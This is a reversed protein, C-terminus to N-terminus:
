PTYGERPPQPWLPEFVFWQDPHDGIVAELVAGIRSQIDEVSQSRSPLLPPYFRFCFTDDAQRLVFAPLIPAGSRKALVAAGWPLPAPKGFFPVLRGGRSFDLDALLVVLEHRKLCASVFAAGADMSCARVGHRIRQSQFLADLRASPQGRVVANVLCGHMTLVSAGLEWNGVHATLGIIGRQMDRCQQLYEIREVKILADLAQPSLRGMQFFDVVYKGFNDFNRRVVQDLEAVSGAGGRGDLVVRLNAAVANRAAHKHQYAWGAARRAIAYCARRPLLKVLLNVSEYLVLANM